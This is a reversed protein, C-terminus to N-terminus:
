TFSIIWVSRYLRGHFTVCMSFFVWLPNAYRWVRLKNKITEELTWQIQNYDMVNFQFIIYEKSQRKIEYINLRWFFWASLIGIFIKFGLCKLHGIINNAIVSRHTSFNSFLINFSWRTVFKNLLYRNISYLNCQLCLLLEIFYLM